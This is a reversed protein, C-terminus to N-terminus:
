CSTSCGLAMGVTLPLTMFCLVQFGKNLLRYFGERDNDYYYSLRPLLAATVANAMTLVMNVTKQAYVYYGVSEDTALINLMTVDIKNYVSSLFIICAILLVPKLHGKLQVKSLDISVFKRATCM